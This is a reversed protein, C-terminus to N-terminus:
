GCMCVRVWLVVLSFAVPPLVSSVLTWVGWFWVVGLWWWVSPSLTSGNWVGVVKSFVVREICFAWGIQVVVTWLVLHLRSVLEEGVWLVVSM